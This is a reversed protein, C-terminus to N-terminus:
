ILKSFQIYHITLDYLHCCKLGDNTELRQSGPKPGRLVMKQMGSILFPRLFRRM